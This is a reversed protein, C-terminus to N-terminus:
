VYDCGCDPTEEFMMLEDNGLIARVLYVGRTEARGTRRARTVANRGTAKRESSLYHRKERLSGFAKEGCGFVAGSVVLLRCFV